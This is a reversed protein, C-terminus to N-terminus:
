NFPSAALEKMKEFFSSVYKDYGFMAANAAFLGIIIAGAFMYWTITFHFMAGVAFLVIISMMIATALVLPNTPLKLSDWVAGKIAQVVINVMWVFLQFVVIAISIYMALKTADFQFM